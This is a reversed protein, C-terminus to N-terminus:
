VYKGTQQGSTETEGERHRERQACKTVYYRGRDMEGNTPGGAQKVAELFHTLGTKLKGAKWTSFISEATM